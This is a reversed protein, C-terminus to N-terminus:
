CTKILWIKIVNFFCNAWSMVATHENQKSFIWLLSYGNERSQLYIEIVVFREFKTVYIISSYILVTSSSFYCTKSRKLHRPSNYCIGCVVYSLCHVNIKWLGSATFDLILTGNLGNNTFAWKRNQLLVSEQQLKM